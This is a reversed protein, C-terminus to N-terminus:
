QCIPRFVIHNLFREIQLPRHGCRGLTLLFYTPRGQLTAFRRSPLSHVDPPRESGSRSRAAALRQRRLRSLPKAFIRIFNEKLM